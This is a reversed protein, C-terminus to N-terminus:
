YGKIQFAMRQITEKTTGEAEDERQEKHFEQQKSMM